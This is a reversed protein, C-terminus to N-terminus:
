PGQRRRRVAAATLLFTAAASLPQQGGTAPLQRRDSTTVTPDSPVSISVEQIRRKASCRPAILNSINVADAMAQYGASSPHLHDSSDYAPRLRSPDSPDRVARDFDVVSSAGSRHWIWDNVQKRRQATAATGYGQAAGGSPTLTGLHVRLGAQQAQRMLETLGDTLQQATLSPNDGLDNIGELILVDTVGPLVADARFRKTAAVGFPFGASSDTLVKNGSIGANLVGVPRGSARLRAALVDSYRMNADLAAPNEVFAGGLAQFGDTISDGFTVLSSEAAPALVDVGSLFYWGNSFATRATLPFEIGTEDLTQDGAGSPSLYNTQVTIFHQSPKAIVGPVYLSVLLDEGARVEFPVADSVVDKGAPLTVNRAGAFTVTTASGARAAAGTGRLAVSVSGLVAPAAAYRNSLRIRVTHGAKTSRIVMRVTQAALSRAVTQEGTLGADSPSAAWSGVWTMSGCSTSATEAAAPPVAAVTVLVASVSTVFCFKWGM